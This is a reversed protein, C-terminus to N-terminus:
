VNALIPSNLPVGFHRHYVACKSLLLFTVHKDRPMEETLTEFNGGGKSIVLDSENVLSQIEPSCRSLLTGPLPGDIGNGVVHAVEEMGIFKADEEVVDNLAPLSRVVYYVDLEYKNKVTEIFLKDLVAEGANDAFYVLRKSRQLREAFLAYDEQRMDMDQLGARVREVIHPPDKSGVMADIANGLIALKAASFLPDGSGAITERVLPYIELLRKNQTLKENRFPDPKGSYETVVELVHEVVEASTMNWSKGRLSPIELIANFVAKEEDSGSVVNRVASLSM